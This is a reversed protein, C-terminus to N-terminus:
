SVSVLQDHPKAVDKVEFIRLAKNFRYGLQHQSADEFVRCILAQCGLRMLNFRLACCSCLDFFQM